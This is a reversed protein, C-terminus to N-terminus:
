LFGVSFPFHPSILRLCYFSWKVKNLYLYLVLSNKKKDDLPPSSTLDMDTCIPQYNMMPPTTIRQRNQQISCFLRLLPSPSSYKPHYCRSLCCRIAGPLFLYIVGLHSIVLHFLSSTNDSLIYSPTHPNTLVSLNFLTRQDLPLYRFYPGHQTIYPSPYTTFSIHSLISSRQLSLRLFSVLTFPYPFLHM